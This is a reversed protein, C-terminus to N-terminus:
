RCLYVLVYLALFWFFLRYTRTVLCYLETGALPTIEKTPFTVAPRTFVLPLKGDPKHSFWSRAPQWSVPIPGHLWDLQHPILLEHRMTPLIKHFLYTKLRYRFLSHPSSSSSGAHTVIAHFHLVTIQPQHLSFLFNIGSIPHCHGRLLPM